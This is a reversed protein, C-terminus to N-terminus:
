PKSKSYKELLDHIVGYFDAPENELHILEWSVFLKHEEEELLYTTLENFILKAEKQTLAHPAYKKFLLLLDEPHLNKFEEPNKFLIQIQKQEIEEM